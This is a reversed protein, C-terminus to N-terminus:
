GRINPILKEAVRSLARFVGAQENYKSETRVRTKGTKTREKLTIVDAPNFKAWGTVEGDSTDAKVFTLNGDQYVTVERVVPVTIGQRESRTALMHELAAKAMNKEVDNGFHIVNANMM